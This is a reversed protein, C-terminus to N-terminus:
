CPGPAFCRAGTSFTWAPRTWRRRAEAPPPLTQQWHAFPRNPVSIISSKGPRSTRSSPRDLQQQAGRRPLFGAIAWWGLLTLLVAAAGFVMLRLTVALRFCKAISLWPFIESWRIARLAVGENELM